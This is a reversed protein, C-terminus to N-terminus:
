NKALENLWAVVTETVQKKHIPDNFSHDAGEIFVTKVTSGKLSAIQETDRPLVVDDATGHLLLWPATVAEAQPAVSVITECLDHMFASSLPCNDEEWMLGEDPTETGFETQAFAKTDVMGALSILAKIRPDRAAQLVGVAGGMSHGVYAIKDYNTSVADLITRLDGVEKSITAERFDGASDGNGAFSFALTNFGAANLAAATGAIIPRDKNGTVGHGLVVIWGSLADDSGSLFDYHLADGHANKIIDDM